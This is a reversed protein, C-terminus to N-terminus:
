LMTEYTIRQNDDPLEDMVDIEFRPVADTFYQLEEYFAYAEYVDDVFGILCTNKALMNRGVAYRPEFYVGLSYFFSEVM